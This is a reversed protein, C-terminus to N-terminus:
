APLLAKAGPLDLKRDSVTPKAVTTRTRTPLSSEAISGRTAGFRRVVMQLPIKKGSRIVTITVETTPPTAAVKRALDDSKSIPHGAYDVVIDAVRLGGRQAPSGSVVGGVLAGSALGIGYWKALEETLDQVVVGLWGHEKLEQCSTSQM